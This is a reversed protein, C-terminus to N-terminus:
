LGFMWVMGGQSTYRALQKIFDAPDRIDAPDDSRVDGSLQAWDGGIGVYLGIYQRGDPGRFAIPAAVIGSGAKFKWLVRGNKADAAKFWGRSFFWAASAAASRCSGTTRISQPCKGRRTAANRPKARDRDRCRWLRHLAPLSVASTKWPRVEAEPTGVM